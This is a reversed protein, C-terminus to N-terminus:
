TTNALRDHKQKFVRFLGLRVFEFQFFKYTFVAEELISFGAM